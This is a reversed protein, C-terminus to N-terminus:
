AGSCTSNITQNYRFAVSLPSDTPRGIYLGLVQNGFLTKFVGGAEENNTVNLDILNSHNNVQAPNVFIDYGDPNNFYNSQLSEQRASDGSYDWADIALAPSTFAILVVALAISLRFLNRM